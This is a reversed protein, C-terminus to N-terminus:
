EPCSWIAYISSLVPTNEQGDSYLEFMVEMYPAPNPTIPGVPPADMQAPSTDYPESWDGMTNIDSGTHVRLLVETGAPEVATWGVEHWYTDPGCGEILYSWYGHPNTFVRLGYGTFDSYTYPHTGVELEDYFEDVMDGNSDVQLQYVMSSDYAVAWVNGQFDIGVGRQNGAYVGWRPHTADDLTVESGSPIATPDVRRVYGDNEALWVYGRTDPAVGATYGDTNGRSWTGSSLTMYSSRDPEYRYIASSEWGGLWVNQDEDIAIGYFCNSAFPSTFAASAVQSTDETDLWAITGGGQGSIWLIGHSDVACGYPNVGTPLDVLEEQTGDTGDFKYCQNNNARENTCVWANGPGVHIGDPTLDGADLCVSRGLENYDAYNVTFLVCEDDTHLYEPDLGNDCVTGLQDPVGDSNCDTNIRGDGDHDTATHAHAPTNFDIAHGSHNPTKTGSALGSFARNAVWVDFNFDVATRSPYNLTLQITNNNIDDCEPTGPDSYCAVSLYRGVETTNDTDVKSVTGIGLDESDAVWLYSFEMETQDLVINGDEDTGCGDQDANNDDESTPFEDLEFCGDDCTGCDNLVGEDVQGDCNDDEGDCAEDAGPNVSADEDNCDDGAPCDPGYGDGDNDTGNPCDPVEDTDDDTVDWQKCGAFVLLALLPITYKM